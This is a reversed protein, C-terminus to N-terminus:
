LLEQVSLCVALRVVFVPYLTCHSSLNLELLTSAVHQSPSSHEPALTCPQTRPSKQKVPLHCEKFQSKIKFITVHDLYNETRKNM